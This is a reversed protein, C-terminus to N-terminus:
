EQMLSSILDAEITSLSPEAVGNCHEIREAIKRKGEEGLQSAYAHVGEYGESEIVDILVCDFTRRFGDTGLRERILPATRKGDIQAMAILAEHEYETGVFEQVADYSPNHHMDGLSLLTYTREVSTQDGCLLDQLDDGVESCNFAGALQAALIVNGGDLLERLGGEVDNLSHRLHDGMFQLEDAHVPTNYPVSGLYLEVADSLESM